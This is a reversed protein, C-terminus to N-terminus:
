PNIKYVDDSAQCSGPFIDTGYIGLCYLYIASFM